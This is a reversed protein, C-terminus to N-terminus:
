HQNIQWDSAGDLDSNGNTSLYVQELSGKGQGKLGGTREDTWGQKPAPTLSPCSGAAPRSEHVRGHNNEDLLDPNIKSTCLSPVHNPATPVEVLICYCAKTKKRRGPRLTPRNRSVESQHIKLVTELPSYFEIEGHLNQPVFAKWQKLRQKWKLKVATIIPRLNGNCHSELCSSPPPRCAWGKIRCWM